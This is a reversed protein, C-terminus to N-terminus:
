ASPFGSDRRRQGSASEKRRPGAELASAADNIGFYLIAFKHYTGVLKVADIRAVKEGRLADNVADVLEAAAEEVTLRGFWDKLRFSLNDCPSIPLGFGAGRLIRLALEKWSNLRDVAFDDLQEAFGNEIAPAAESILLGRRAGGEYPELPLQKRRTM